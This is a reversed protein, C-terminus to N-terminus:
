SPGRPNEWDWNQIRRHLEKAWYAKKGDHIIRDHIHNLEEVTMPRIRTKGKGGPFLKERILENEPDWPDTPYLEGMRQIISTKILHDTDEAPAQPMAEPAGPQETSSESNGESLDLYKHWSGSGSGSDVARGGTSPGADEMCCIGEKLRYLNVEKRAIALDIAFLLLELSPICQALTDIRSSPFTMATHWATSPEKGIPHMWPSTQRPQRRFVHLFTIGSRKEIRDNRM